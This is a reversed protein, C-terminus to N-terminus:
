PKIFRYSKKYCLKDVPWASTGSSFVRVRHVDTASGDEPLACALVVLSMVSGLLSDMSPGVAASDLPFLADGGTDRAIELIAGEYSTRLIQEQGRDRASDRSKVDGSTTGPLDSVRDDSGAQGGGRAVAAALDPDIPGGTEATTKRSRLDVRSRVPLRLVFSPVSVGAIQRRVQELRTTFDATSYRRRTQYIDGDTVFLVAARLPHRRFLGDSKSLVEAVNDLFGTRGSVSYGRVARDLLSADGTNNQVVRLGDNVTLVMVQVFPPLGRVFEVLKKRVADVYELDGTTDMALVILLPSRGAYSATVALPTEDWLVSLGEASLGAVAKGVSVAPSVSVKLSAPRSDGAFLWSDGTSCLVLSVACCACLLPAWRLSAGRRVRVGAARM